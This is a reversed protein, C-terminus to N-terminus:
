HRAQNDGMASAVGEMELINLPAPATDLFKNVGISKCLGTRGAKRCDINAVHWYKGANKGGILQAKGVNAEFVKRRGAFVSVFAGSTKFKEYHKGLYSFCDVFITYVGNMNQYTHMTEPGFGSVADNELVAFPKIAPNGRGMWSIEGHSKADEKDKKSALDEDDEKGPKPHSRAPVLMHLDLDSPESDWALVVRMQGAPMEKSLPIRLFAAKTNPIIDAENPSYGKRAVTLKQLQGREIMLTYEGKTNTVTSATAMKDNNHMVSITAGMIPTTDKAAVVRGKLVTQPPLRKVVVHRVTHADFLKGTRAGLTLKWRASPKFVGLHITASWKDITVTAVNDRFVFGVTHYGHRLTGGKLKKLDPKLTKMVLRGGPSRGLVTVHRTRGTAINIGVGSAKHLYKTSTIRKGGQSSSSYFMGVGAGGTGGSAKYQFAVSFDVMRPTKLVLAGAQKTTAPTLSLGGATLQASGTLRLRPDSDLGKPTRMDKDLSWKWHGFKKTKRSSGRNLSHWGHHKPTGM